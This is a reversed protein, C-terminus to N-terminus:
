IGMQLYAQIDLMLENILRETFKRFKETAECIPRGLALNPDYPLFYTRRPLKEKLSDPMERMLDYMNIVLIADRLTNSFVNLKPLTLPTSLVVLIDSSIALDYAYELDYPAESIILNVGNEMAYDRCSTRAYSFAKHESFDLSNIKYLMYSIGRNEYVDLSVNEGAALTGSFRALGLSECERASLLVLARKKKGALKSLFLNLLLTKGEGPGLSTICIELLMGRM